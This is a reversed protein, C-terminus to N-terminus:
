ANLWGLLMSKFSVLANMKEVFSAHLKELRPMAAYEEIRGRKRDGALVCLELVLEM